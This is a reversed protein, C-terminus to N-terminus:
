EYNLRSIIWGVVNWVFITGKHIDASPNPEMKGAVMKYARHTIKTTYTEGTLPARLSKGNRLREDQFRDTFFRNVRGNIDENKIM